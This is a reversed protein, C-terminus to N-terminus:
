EAAVAGVLAGIRDVYVGWDQIKPILDVRGGDRYLALAPLVFVGLAKMAAPEDEPAILVARLRNAHQRVLERLVVAVDATEARKDPDGAFFVVLPEGSAILANLDALGVEDVNEHTKLSDLLARSM